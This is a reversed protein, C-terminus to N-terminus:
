KGLRNIYETVATEPIRYHRKNIKVSGIEGSRVRELATWYSIALRKAVQEITLFQPVDQFKTKKELTFALPRKSSVPPREQKYWDATITFEPKAQSKM